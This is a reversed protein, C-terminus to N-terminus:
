KYTAKFSQNVGSIIQCNGIITHKDNIGHADSALAGPFDVQYYTGNHLLAGHTTTADTWGYVIDGGNDIDFAASGTANPVDVTTYVGGKYVSAHSVLNGDQWYVTVKGHDNTGTAATFGVAEPEDLTTYTKGILLFGHVGNVDQFTGVIQGKDNIGSAGVDLAGAPGPIDTFKGNKYVFGTSPGGNSYGGVLVMPGNPNIGAINTSTAKPHDITIVKNGNMVFGHFRKNKDQYTGVIVGANNIQSAITQLAGRVKIQKYTFQLPVDGAMAASVALLVTVVLRQILKVNKM